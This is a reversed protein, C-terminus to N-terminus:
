WGASQPLRTYSGQSNKFGTPLGGPRQVPSSGLAGSTGAFSLTARADPNSRTQVVQQGQVRALNTVAMTRNAYTTVDIVGTQSTIATGTASSQVIFVTSSPSRYVTAMFQNYATTGTLGTITVYPTGALIGHASGTTYYVLGTISGSEFEVRTGTTASSLVFTTASPAALVTAGSATFTTIGTVSIVDGAVLGNAVSTTYYVRGGLSGPAGGATGTVGSSAISFETDSVRVVATAISQNPDVTLSGQDMGSITVLDGTSLGHPQSCIYIIVNTGAGASTIIDTRATTVTTTSVASVTANLRSVVTSAPTTVFAAQSALLQANILSQSLSVNDRTQIAPRIASAASAKFKLYQTYESASLTPM